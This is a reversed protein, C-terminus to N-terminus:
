YGGILRLGGATAPVLSGPLRGQGALLLPFRNARGAVKPADAPVALTARVDEFRARYADALEPTGSHYAAAAAAWDGTRAFHGALFNAAYLANRTPDLMDEVSTFAKAHWRLNLQFCGLDMSTVGQDLAQVALAAATEADPLWHGEGGINVTWPWPDGGRGTEVLAVALLVEYPVGSREAADRAANRCLDATSATARAHATGALGFLTVACILLFGHLVPM